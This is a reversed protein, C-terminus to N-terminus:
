RPGEKKVRGHELYLSRGGLALVEDAQHTVFLLAVGLEKSARELRSALEMRAPADLMGLPEDLLLLGPSVALARALAVRRSEGGSLTDTRRRLLHEVGALDTARALSRERGERDQDLYRLGFRLNEEVNLHPFLTDDQTVYGLSRAEPPLGAVDRGKLQIRGADLPRLGAVAELLTTKGSGSQGLLKLVGGAPLELDLPGLVFEGQRLVLGEIKLAAIM